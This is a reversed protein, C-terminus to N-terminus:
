GSSSSTVESIYQIEDQESSALYGKRFASYDSITMCGANSLVENIFEFLLQIDICVSLNKRNHRGDREGSLSLLQKTSSFDNVFNTKQRLIKDFTTLTNRRKFLFSKAAVAPMIDLLHINSGEEWVITEANDIISIQDTLCETEPYVIKFGKSELLQEVYTLGSIKGSVLFNRRSLFVNRYNGNSSIKWSESQNKLVDKAYWSSQTVGIQSGPRPLYLREVMAKQRELKVKSIPIDLLSFYDKIYNPLKDVRPNAATLFIIGDVNNKLKNWAWLRHVSEAFFHGFHNFLIGGYIWTGPTMNASTQNDRLGKNVVCEGNRFLNQFENPIDGTVQVGHSWMRKDQVLQVRRVPHLISNKSFYIEYRDKDHISEPKM